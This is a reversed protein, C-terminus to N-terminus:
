STSSPHFGGGSGVQLDDLSQLSQGFEDHLTAFSTIIFHM